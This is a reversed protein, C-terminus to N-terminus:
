GNQKGRRRLMINKLVCIEEKNLLIVIEVIFSFVCVIAVSFVLTIWTHNPLLWLAFLSIAVVVFYCLCSIGVDKYFTHWKLKLLFATYPVTVLLNRLISILSSVGAIAFVGLNTFKLLVYVIVFNLLGAIIVTVSNLRLKNTTTYVNNLTQPGSFPVFALCTLFSLMALKVPDLTPVWLRYFQVGFVSLVGLPISMLISSLKMSWRLNRLVEKTDSTAYTITLNPAFNTNIMGGLQIIYNPITKATALIGMELPAVFLNALLLDLGTMLINGCQTITNWIGSSVLSWVYKPEFLKWQFRIEKILKRKILFYAPLLLAIIIFSTLGVYYMKPEFFGFLAMLIVVRLLSNTLSILNSYYLKNTVYTSIMFISSIQSLLFNAFVFGFLWKVDAVSVSDINILQQLNLTVITFAVFLVAGIVLNGTILATYFKQAEEKHGKHYEISIFRGAVSNLAITILSAYNVFNNALQTFGNAEAGLHKIIYPSLFFGIAISAAFSFLNSILNFITTYKHNM